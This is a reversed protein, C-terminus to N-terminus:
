PLSYHGQQLHHHTRENRAAERALPESRTGWGRSTSVGGLAYMWSMQLYTELPSAVAIRIKGLKSKILARNEQQAYTSVWRYVEDFDSVDMLLNKRAKFYDRKIGEYTSVECCVRGFSASGSREWDGAELWESLTQTTSPHVRAHHCDSRASGRPGM